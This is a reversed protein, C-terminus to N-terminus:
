VCKMEEPASFHLPDWGHGEDGGGWGLSFDAFWVYNVQLCM